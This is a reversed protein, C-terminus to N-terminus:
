LFFVFMLGLAAGFLFLTTGTDPIPLQQGYFGIQTISVEGNLTVIEGSDIFRSRGGVRYLHEWPTGDQARGFVYIMTMWFGGPAGTMNWWISATPTDGLTFLDTFFFTGGNLAGFRSIWGDPWGPLNSVASDLFIQRNLEEHIKGPISNVGGPTLDILTAEARSAFALLLIIIKTKM